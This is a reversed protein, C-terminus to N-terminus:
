LKVYPIGKLNNDDPNRSFLNEFKRRAGLNSAEAVYFDVQWKQRVYDRGDESSLYNLEEFNEPTLKRIVAKSIMLVLDVDKPEPAITAFSGNIWLDGHVGLKILKGIFLSLQSTLRRRLPTDVRGLFVTELSSLDIEELGRPVLAPYALKQHKNPM